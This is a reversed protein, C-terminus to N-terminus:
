IKIRLFRCIKGHAQVACACSLKLKLFIVPFKQQQFNWNTFLKRIPGWFPCFPKQGAWFFFFSFKNLKEDNQAKLCVLSCFKNKACDKFIEFLMKTHASKLTVRLCQALHFLLMEYQFKPNPTGCCNLVVHCTDLFDIWGLAPGWCIQKVRKQIRCM